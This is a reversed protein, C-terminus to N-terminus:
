DFDKGVLRGEYIIVKRSRRTGDLNDRSDWGSQRAVASDFREHSDLILCTM